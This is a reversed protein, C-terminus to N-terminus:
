KPYLALVAPRRLLIIVFLSLATGFPFYMLDFWSFVLVLLRRRRRRICRGIYAIAAAHVVNLALVTACTVFVVAGLLIAEDKLSPDIAAFLDLFWQASPSLPERPDVHHMLEWGPFLLPLPFLGNILTFAALAYHGYVLLRLHQESNADPVPQNM